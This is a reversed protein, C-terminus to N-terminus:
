QGFDYHNIAEQTIVGPTTNTYTATSELGSEVAGSEPPAATGSIAIDAYDNPVGSRNPDDMNSAAVNGDNPQSSPDQDSQDAASQESVGTVEALLSPGAEETEVTVFQLNKEGGEEGEDIVILAGGQHDETEYDIKELERGLDVKPSDEHTDDQTADGYLPNNIDHELPTTPEEEDTTFLVLTHLSM